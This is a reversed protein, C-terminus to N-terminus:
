REVLPPPVRSYATWTAPTRHPGAPRFGAERLEREFRFQRYRDLDGPDQGLVPGASVASGHKWFVVDGALRELAVRRVELGPFGDERRPDVPLFVYVPPDLRDDIVLFDM